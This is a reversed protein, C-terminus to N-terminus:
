HSTGIYDDLIDTFVFYIGNNTDAYAGAGNNGYVRGIRGFFEKIGMSPYKVPKNSTDNGLGDYWGGNKGNAYGDWILMANKRAMRDKVAPLAVRYWTDVHM